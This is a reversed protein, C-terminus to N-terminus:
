PRSAQTEGLINEVVGKALYEKSNWVARLNFSLRYVEFLSWRIFPTDEHRRSPRIM